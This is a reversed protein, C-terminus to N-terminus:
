VTLDLINGTFPSADSAHTEEEPEDRGGAHHFPNKEQRRKDEEGVPKAKDAQEAKQVKKEQRALAERARDANAAKQAEPHAHEAQAMQSLHPLQQILLALDAEGPMM